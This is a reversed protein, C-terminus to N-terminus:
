REQDSVKDYTVVPRTIIRKIVIDERLVAGAVCLAGVSILLCLISLIFYFDFYM